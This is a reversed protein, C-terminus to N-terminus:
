LPLVGKEVRKLAPLLRKYFKGPLRRTNYGVCWGGPVPMCHLGNPGKFFVPFADPDWSARRRWISALVKPGGYSVSGNAGSKSTIHLIM